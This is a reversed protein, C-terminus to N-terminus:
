VLRRLVELLNTQDFSSKVIYANAGVDIGHERDAGSELATVLVVPLEGLRKDARIKATLGFGNLRPMDVDSVVVDFHGSRLATFAEVGDVATEVRYGAAELIGKLLMRSTISDEAVLISKAAAAASTDDVAPRLVRPLGVASTLLDPVHLIPVVQGVGLVTAGAIHRVRELQTGLPKVLVEQEDLVEDVEFAMPQESQAGRLLLVPFRAARAAQEVAPIGLVGALSVLAVARGGLAITERNEVTAVQESPIRAVREISRTPLVFCRGAARIVVGRFRALTVPLTIRFSTGQRPVSEVSLKGTLREIHQKVISLGLGRGSLDTIAASTSVGPELALALLRARPLAAAEQAGLLGAEVAARQLRDTDIGAGDDRVEIEVQHGNRQSAAIRLTGRPPKGQARRSAPSEIGHDVSNRVLHILPDRLEDLIRRDIEIDAGAIVLEVDKGCDRALQRVSPPFLDLLTSLPQVVAQKMEELLQDVMSAVVRHDHQAARAQRLLDTEVAAVFDQSDDIYTRMRAWASQLPAPGSRAELASEVVRLDARLQASRMRWRAPAKRLAELAVLRQATALKAYLLEEARRLVADLTRKRVRVTDSLSLTPAASPEERAAATERAPAAASRGPVPAPMGGAMAQQLAQRLASLEATQPPPAPGDLSALSRSLLGVARHLQDFLAASPVVADRKLVAFVNELSQCTSEIAKANVARAAGKLSHAARFVTDLPGPTVVVPEVRELEVLGSAITQLHEQAETRFTARLRQLLPEDGAPM